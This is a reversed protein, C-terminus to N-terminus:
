LSFSSVHLELTEMFPAIKLIYAYDLLDTRSRITSDLVVLKLRLNRLYTFKFPDEPVITRQLSSSATGVKLESSHATNLETTSRTICKGANAPRSEPGSFM